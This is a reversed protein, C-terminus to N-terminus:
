LGGVSPDVFGAFEVGGAEGDGEVAVFLCGDVAGFLEPGSSFFEFFFAFCM